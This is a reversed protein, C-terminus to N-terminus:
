VGPKKKLQVWTSRKWHAIAAEDRELARREPKQYTWGLDALLRSVHAPHYHVGFEQQIIAAIRRATWLDNAFGYARAGKQLLKPVRQRQRPTLKRPRGPAPKAALGDPGQRRLTERWQWVASVAAGVMRAVASLTLGGHLLRM